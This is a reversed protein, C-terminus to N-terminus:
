PANDVTFRTWKVQFHELALSMRRNHLPAAPCLPRRSLDALSM